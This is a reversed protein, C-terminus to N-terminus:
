YSIKVESILKTEKFLKMINVRNVVETFINSMVDDAGKRGIIKIQEANGQIKEKATPQGTKTLIAEYTVNANWKRDKLDIVFTKVRITLKSAEESETNVVQAGMLKLRKEFTAKFLDTLNHEGALIREKNPMVWALSYNDDFDRFKIAAGPNMIRKRSRLDEVVLYVTQGKLQQSAKPIQYDVMLYNRGFCGSLLLVSVIVLGAILISSKNNRM